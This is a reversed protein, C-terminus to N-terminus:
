WKMTYVLWSETMVQREQDKKCRPLVMQSTRVLLIHISIVLTIDLGLDSLM